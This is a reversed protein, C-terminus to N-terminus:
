PSFTPSRLGLEERVERSYKELGDGLPIGTADAIRVMRQFNSAVGAADIMAESGMVSTVDDRARRLSEEDGGVIAEAFRVLVDGNEVGSTARSDTIAQLDVTEGRTM